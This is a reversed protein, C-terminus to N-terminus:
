PPRELHHRVLFDFVTQLYRETTLDAKAYLAANHSLPRPARAKLYAEAVREMMVFCAVSEVTRGDTLLGHNRLM